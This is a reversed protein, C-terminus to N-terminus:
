ESLHGPKHAKPHGACCISEDWPSQRVCVRGTCKIESLRSLFYADSVELDVEESLWSRNDWLDGNSTDYQHARDGFYRVYLAARETDAAFAYWIECGSAKQECAEAINLARRLRQVATIVPRSYAPFRTKFSVQRAQEQAVCADSPRFAEFVVLIQDYRWSLDRLRKAVDIHGLPLEVLNVFIVATRPDISVDVGDLTEREVLETQASKSHLSRVIGSKRIFQLSALYRHSTHPVSVQDPLVLTWHDILEGPPETSPIVIHSSPLQTETEIKQRLLPETPDNLSAPLPFTTSFQRRLQLFAPLLSAEDVILTAASLDSFAKPLLSRRHHIIPAEQSSSLNQSFKSPTRYSQISTASAELEHLPLLPQRGSSGDQSVSDIVLTHFGKMRM